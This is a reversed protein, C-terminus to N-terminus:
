DRAAAPSFLPCAQRFNQVLREVELVPQHMAAPTSLNFVLIKRNLERLTREYDAAANKVATDFARKESTFPLIRRARLAKGREVLKALRAEIRAREDRIEKILEIEPPAFGNSKLLHYALANDGAYSNDDLALPKGTGPLNDFEGREQAERIQEEIYDGRRQARLRQMDSRSAMAEAKITDPVKRWDIFDM